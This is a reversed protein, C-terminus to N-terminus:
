LTRGLGAAGGFVLVEAWGAVGKASDGDAGVSVLGRSKVSLWAGVVAVGGVDSLM